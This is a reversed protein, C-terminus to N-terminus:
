LAYRLKVFLKSFITIKFIDLNQINQVTDRNMCVWVCLRGPFIQLQM